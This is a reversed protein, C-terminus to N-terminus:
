VWSVWSRAWPAEETVQKGSKLAFVELSHTSVNSFWHETAIGLLTLQTDMWRSSSMLNMYNAEMSCEMPPFSATFRIEKVVLVEMMTVNIWGERSVLCQTGHEVLVVEPLGWLSSTRKNSGIKCILFSLGGFGLAKGLTMHCIALYINSALVIENWVGFWWKKTNLSTMELLLMLVEVHSGKM